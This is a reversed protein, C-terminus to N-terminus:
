EEGLEKKIAIALDEKSIVGYKNTILKRVRKGLEADNPTDATYSRIISTTMFLDQNDLPNPNAKIDSPM